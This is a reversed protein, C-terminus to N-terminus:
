ESLDRLISSVTNALDGLSNSCTQFVIEADREFYHHSLIDRMGMVDQWPIHPYKDLLLHHTKRDIGKINEGIAILLMCISDLRMMGDESVLFDEASAIPILRREITAISQLM